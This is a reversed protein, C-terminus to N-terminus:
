KYIVEHARDFCPPKAEQWFKTGGPCNRAAEKSRGDGNSTRSLADRSDHVREVEAEVKREPMRKGGLWLSLGPSHPPFPMRGAYSLAENGRGPGAERRGTGRAAELWARESNL